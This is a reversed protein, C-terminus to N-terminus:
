QFHIDFASAESLQNKKCMALAELLNSAKLKQIVNSKIELIAPTEIQFHEAIHQIPVSSALVVLLEEEFFSLRPKSDTKMTKKMKSISHTLIIKATPAAFVM